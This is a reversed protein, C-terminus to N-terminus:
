LIYCTNNKSGPEMLESGMLKIYKDLGCEIKDKVKNLFARM